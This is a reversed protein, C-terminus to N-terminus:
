QVVKETSEAWFHILASLLVAAKGRCLMGAYCLTRRVNNKQVGPVFVTHSQTTACCIALSEGEHPGASGRESLRAAHGPLKAANPFPPPPPLPLPPPPLDLGTLVSGLGAECASQFFGKESM